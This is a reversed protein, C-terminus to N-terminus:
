RFEQKYESKEAPEYIRHNGIDTSISIKSNLIDLIVETRKEGVAAGLFHNLTRFEEINELAGQDVAQHHISAIKEEGAYINYRSDKDIEMNHLIETDSTGFNGQIGFEYNQSM